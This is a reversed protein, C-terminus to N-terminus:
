KAYIPLDENLKNQLQETKDISNTLTQIEIKYKNIMNITYIDDPRKELHEYGREIKTHLRQLKNKANQLAKPVLGGEITLFKVLKLDVMSENALQKSEYYKYGYYGAVGASILTTVGAIGIIIKERRTMKIM